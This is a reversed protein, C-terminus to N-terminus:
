RYAAYAFAFVALYLVGGALWYNRWTRMPGPAGVLATLIALLTLGGLAGLYWPPAASAYHGTVFPAPLLLLFAAALLPIAVLRGSNM